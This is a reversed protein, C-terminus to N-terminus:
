SGRVKMKAWMAEFEKNRALGRLHPYRAFVPDTDWLKLVSKGTEREIAAVDRKNREYYKDGGLIHLVVNFDMPKTFFERMAWDAINDRMAGITIIGARKKGGQINLMWPVLARDRIMFYCFVAQRFKRM